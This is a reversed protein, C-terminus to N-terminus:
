LFHLLNRKHGWLEEPDFSLIWHRLHLGSEHGFARAVQEMEYAAQQVNVGLGGVYAAKSPDMCHSLVSELADSDHYKSVGTVAYNPDVRHKVKFIPM